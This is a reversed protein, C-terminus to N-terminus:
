GKPKMCEVWIVDAKWSPSLTLMTGARTELEKEATQCADFTSFSGIPWYVSKQDANVTSTLLAFVVISYMGPTGETLGNFVWIEIWTTTIAGTSDFATAKLIHRGSPLKSTDLKCQWPALNERNLFTTGLWFDVRVINTGTVQCGTSDSFVGSVLSRNVPATFQVTPAAQVSSIFLLLLLFRWATMSNGKQNILSKDPRCVTFVHDFWM